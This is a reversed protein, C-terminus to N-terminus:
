NKNSMIEIYCLNVEFKHDKQRLRRLLQIIPRHRQAQSLASSGLTGVNADGHQKELFEWSALQRTLQLANVSWSDELSYHSGRRPTIGKAM